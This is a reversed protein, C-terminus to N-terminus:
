EEREGGKPRREIWERKRMTQKISGRDGGGRERERERERAQKSKEGEQLKGRHKGGGGGWAPHFEPLYGRGGERGHM